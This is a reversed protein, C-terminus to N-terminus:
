GRAGVTRTGSPGARLRASPAAGSGAGAGGLAVEVGELVSSAGSLEGLEADEEGGDGLGAVGEECEGAAVLGTRLKASPDLLAAGFIDGGEEELAEELVGMLYLSSSQVNLGRDRFSACDVFAGGARAAGLVGAPGLGLSESGM